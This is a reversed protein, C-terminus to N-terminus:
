RVQLPIQAVVATGGERRRSVTCSGGLEAARETMTSLGVGRRPQAPLGCGDDTVELHLADDMRLSLACHRPRGHRVANTMAEMAIRYAAVEVAAPLGRLPSTAVIEVSTGDGINLRDAHRQLAGVLGLEDLAPPRLDEVLRRVDVVAAAAEEKLSQLLLQVQEPDDSAKAVELGLGIGALTPGLGDHLDRRLRRREEERAAVLRQRSQQLEVGLRVAAVASGAQRQLAELMRVDRPDLTSQGARPAVLLAGVEAGGHLLPLRTWDAVDPGVAAALADAGDRQILVRVSPLRLITAVSEAVGRLVSQPDEALDMRQGFRDLASFPDSREGYLAKDVVSRLRDRLPLAILATVVSAVLDSSQDSLVVSVSAVVGAFTAALLGTLLGYTLSRRIVVQAGTIQDRLVAVAFTVLLVTVEVTAVADLWPVLPGVTPVLFTVGLVGAALAPLALRQREEASGRRWRMVLSGAAAAAAVTFCVFGVSMLADSSGELWHAGLPNDVGFDEIEGPALAQGLIPLVIAGGAMAVVPRWRRSPLTGDPFLLVGLTLFPTFGLVWLWSAFWAAVTRLPLGSRSALDAYSYVALTTSAALGTFVWLRGLSHRPLQSLVAAGLLPLVLGLVVNPLIEAVLRDNPLDGVVRLAGTAALLLGSAVPAIWVRGGMRTM